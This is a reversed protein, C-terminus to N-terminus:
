DLGPEESNTYSGLLSNNFIKSYSSGIELGKAYSQIWDWTIKIGDVLSTKPYWGCAERIRSIDLSNYPVDAARKELFKVKAKLGTVKELLGVIENLSRGQGSGVNYLRYGSSDDLFIILADVLDGVYFFDRVVSGDGWIEIDRGLLMQYLAYTVFGQGKNPDQGEGFPNGGRAIRYDLNHKKRYVELYKEIALKSVGHASIPNTQHDESIPNSETPGYVSGGSSVFVLRQISAEVSAQIFNLTGLVNTQADYLIVDNSQGPTTSVALHYVVDIDKLAKRACDIDAFNGKFYELGKNTNVNDIRRSLVRVSYNKEILRKILHKGIFGTGGTVLINKSM